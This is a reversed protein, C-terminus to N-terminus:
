QLSTRFEFHTRTQIRIWVEVGSELAPRTLHHAFPSNLLCTNLALFPKQYGHYGTQLAQFCSSTTRLNKSSGGLLLRPSGELGTVPLATLMRSLRSGLTIASHNPPPLHNSEPLLSALGDSSLLVDLLLSCDSNMVVILLLSCKLSSKNGATHM